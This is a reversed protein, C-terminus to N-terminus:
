PTPDHISIKICLYGNNESIMNFLVFFVSFRHKARRSTFFFTYSELNYKSVELCSYVVFFM